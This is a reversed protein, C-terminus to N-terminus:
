VTLHIIKKSQMSTTHINKEIASIGNTDGIIGGWERGGGGEM